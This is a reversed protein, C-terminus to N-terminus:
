VELNEMANRVHRLLISSGSIPLHYMIAMVAFYHGYSFGTPPKERLIAAILHTVFEDTPTSKSRHSFYARYNCSAIASDGINSKITRLVVNVGDIGFHGLELRSTDAM